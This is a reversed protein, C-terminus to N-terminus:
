RTSRRGFLLWSVIAGLAAGVLVNGYREELTPRAAPTTAPSTVATRPAPTPDEALNAVVQALLRSSVDAVAGRGLRAVPGSIDLETDILVRTKGPGVQELRARIEATANSQTGPDRGSAAIVAWRGASDKEVLEATGTFHASVPGVEVKVSGRYRDGDRGEVTAGPLCPAIRELDTLLDWTADLGLAVDIENQLLM